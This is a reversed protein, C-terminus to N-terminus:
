PGVEAESASSGPAHCKRSDGIGTRHFPNLRSGWVFDQECPSLLSGPMSCPSQGPSSSKLPGQLRRPAQGERCQGGWPGPHDETTGPVGLLPHGCGKRGRRAHPSAQRSGWPLGHTGATHTPTLHSGPQVCTGAGLERSFCGRPSPQASHERTLSCFTLRGAPWRGTVYSPPTPCWDGQLTGARWCRGPPWVQSIHGMPGEVGVLGGAGILLIRSWSSPYRGLVRRSRPRITAGPLAPPTFLPAQRPCCLGEGASGVVRFGPSVMAPPAQSTVGVARHQGGPGKELGPSGGSIDLCWLAQSPAQPPWSQPPRVPLLNQQTGLTLM